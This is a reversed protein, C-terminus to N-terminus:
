TGSIDCQLAIEKMRFGRHKRLWSIAERLREVEEGSLMSGVPRDAESLDMEAM